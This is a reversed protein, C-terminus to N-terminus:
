PGSIQLAHAGSVGVTEDGDFNNNDTIDNITDSGSLAAYYCEGDTM